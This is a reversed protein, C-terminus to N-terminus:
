SSPPQEGGGEKMEGHRDDLRARGYVCARYEGATECHLEDLTNSQIARAISPFLSTKEERIIVYYDSEGKPFPAFAALPVYPTAAYFAVRSRGTFVPGGPLEQAQLWEAARRVALTNERHPQLQKGLSFCLLIALGLGFSARLLRGESVQRGRTFPHILLRGLVPVGLAAYGSFFILGPFVHRGAVYGADARLSVLIPFYLLPFVLHFLARKGPQFGLFLIGIMALAIEIRMTSFCEHLVDCACMGIFRLNEAVRDMSSPARKEPPHKWPAKPKSEPKPIAVKAKVKKKNLRQERMREQRAKKQEPTLEPKDAPKVSRIPKSEKPIMVSELHAMRVLSKKKTLTLSGEQAHLLFLYPAMVVLASLSLATCWVVCPGLRWRRRALGMAAIMLGAIVLGLGEPRTLYALGSAVGAWAAFGWREEDFARWLLAVGVLFFLLYLGESQVDAGYRLAHPQVAYILTGMWALRFGFAHRLFLYVGGVSLTSALISVTVGALEWDPILFYTLYIFFSYAPHFDAAFAEAWRGEHFSKAIGIFTPGDNFMIATLKWHVIRLVLGLFLLLVLIRGQFREEPWTHKRDKLDGLWGKSFEAFLKHVGSM